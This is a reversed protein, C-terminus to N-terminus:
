SNSLLAKIAEIAGPQSLYGILDHDGDVEPNDVWVDRYPNGAFGNRIPTYRRRLTVWDREDM